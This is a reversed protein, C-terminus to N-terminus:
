NAVIITIKGNVSIPDPAELQRSGIRLQHIGEVDPCAEDVTRQQFISFLGDELSRAAGSPRFRDTPNVLFQTAQAADFRWPFEHQHIASRDSQACAKHMQLSLDVPVLKEM